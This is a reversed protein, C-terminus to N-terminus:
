VINIKRLNSAHYIFKAVNLIVNKSTKSMLNEFKTITPWHCYYPKFYKRRLELYFPCVLLFHYECEVVNSNCLKCNRDTRDLRQYRGREIALDHSSLRFQTLAFKYKKEVIFDLYNELEFDHKYRAYMELRSSNNVASYWSQKYTDFIRRKILDLPIDITNQHIWVNSLGISDLLHKIQFAWNLGSYTMNNDVDNKLMCYIKKPIYNNYSSLINIWCRIMSIKRYICLPYRGLEGYLGSLNTSKRVNLTWRCFKTHIMEIDNAEINGWVEASYNLVSGVLVDFLKCKQITTFEFQRFLSFLNHLAFAAHKALRKQTRHFNGNKFFHIGLYKFSTVMELKTDNLYFDFTTYYRGNEFIMAKTKKTNIKLGWVNCYSEIDYLISQLVEPSKAFVVADDAYLMLFLQMDDITFIKDLGVHINQIIDNIFLMFLLPSSPDGQKLGNYSTFFRSKASQFRVCSRVISYMARLATVFKSSINESILKQWLFTRYVKDFAKEYDIFVCYLKEGASLTKAIISYFTFICDVTSKGKQFGFQNDLIKDEKDAWKSLRNLLIQSYIKGMINILTIGRYNGPEDPNGGKFIPVIIGEGWLRPYEGNAFLRNYLKLLFPSIINFSSKFLEACLHDTGSSKNNKQYFIAHKLETETIEGDLDANTQTESLSPNQQQGNLSEPEIGYISKFHEFM